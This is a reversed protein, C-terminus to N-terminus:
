VLVVIVIILHAGHTAVLGAIFILCRAIHLVDLNMM